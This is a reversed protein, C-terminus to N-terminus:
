NPGNPGRHSDCPPDPISCNHGKEANQCKVRQDACILPTLASIRTFTQEAICLTPIICWKGKQCAWACRSMWCPPSPHCSVAPGKPSLPAAPIISSAGEQRAAMGGSAPVWTSVCLHIGAQASFRGECQFSISLPIVSLPSLERMQPFSLSLRNGGTCRPVHHAQEM